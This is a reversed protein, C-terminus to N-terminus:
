LCFLIDGHRNTCGVGKKHTKKKFMCRARLPIRDWEHCRETDAWPDSLHGASRLAPYRHRVCGSLPDSQLIQGDIFDAALLLM